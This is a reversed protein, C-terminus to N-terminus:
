GSGKISWSMMLRVETITKVLSSIRHPNLLMLILGSSLCWAAKRVGKLYKMGRTINKPRQLEGAVKWHIMSWSNSERRLVPHMIMYTLSMRMKVGERSVCIGRTLLTRAVSWCFWNVRFGEFHLKWLSITSYRPLNIDLPIIVMLGECVTVIDWHGIGVLLIARCHM